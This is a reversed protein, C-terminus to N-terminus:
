CRSSTRLCSLQQVKELERIAATAMERMSKDRDAPDSDEVSLKSLLDHPTAARCDLSVIRRYHDDKYDSLFCRLHYQLARSHESYLMHACRFPSGPDSKAHSLFKRLDEFMEERRDDLILVGTDALADLDPANPAFAAERAARALENETRMPRTFYDPTQLGAQNFVYSEIIRRREQSLPRTGNSLLGAITKRHDKDGRRQREALRVAAALDDKSLRKRHEDRLALLRWRWGLGIEEDWHMRCLELSPKSVHRDERLWAEVNQRGLMQRLQNRWANGRGVAM